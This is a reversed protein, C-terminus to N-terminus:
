LELRDILSVIKERAGVTDVRINRITGAFPVLLKKEEEKKDVESKEPMLLPSLIGSLTNIKEHLRSTEEELKGIQDVTQGTDKGKVQVGGGDPHEM